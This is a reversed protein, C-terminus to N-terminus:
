SRVGFPVLSARQQQPSACAAPPEAPFSPRDSEVDFISSARRCLSCASRASRMFTRVSEEEGRRARENNTVARLLLGATGERGCTFCRSASALCFRSSSVAHGPAGVMLSREFFITPSRESSWIKAHSTRGM